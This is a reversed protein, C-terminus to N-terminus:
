GFRWILECLRDSEVRDWDATGKLFGELAEQGDREAERVLGGDEEVWGQVEEARSSVCLLAIAVQGALQSLLCGENV